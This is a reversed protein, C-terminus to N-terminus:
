TGKSKRKAPVDRRVPAFVAHADGGGLEGPQKGYTKFRALVTTMQKDNLLVPQGVQLAAWYQHAITEVEGALWLAKDLSPGFAIQGHNALLCATRGDLAKLMTDSLEQTGFEAYGSCRISTGGGVGIMYHFAPIDIRLCALATAYISHTHVVAGADQRQRYIDMHMRWETSPLYNGRYGGDLDMEVIHEPKMKDYAIGSATILFGEDTRVSVNGSTGQNIGEANMKLCTEIAKRRLDLYRLKPM